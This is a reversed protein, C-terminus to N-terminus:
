SLYSYVPSGTMFTGGEGNDLLLRTSWTLGDTMAEGASVETPTDEGGVDENRLLVEM